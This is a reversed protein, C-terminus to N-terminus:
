KIGKGMTSRNRLEGKKGSEPVDQFNCHMEDGDGNEMKLILSFEKSELEKIKKNKIDNSNNIYREWEAM